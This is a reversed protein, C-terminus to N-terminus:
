HNEMAIKKLLLANRQLVFPSLKEQPVDAVPVITWGGPTEQLDQLEKITRVSDLNM